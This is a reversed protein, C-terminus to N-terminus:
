KLRVMMVHDEEIIQAHTLVDNGRVWVDVYVTSAREVHLASGASLVTGDVEVEQITFDPARSNATSVSGTHGLLPNGLIHNASVTSTLVLVLVMALAFIRFSKM